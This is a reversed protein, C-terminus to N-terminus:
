ELSLTHKEVQEAIYQVRDILNNGLVMDGVGVIIAQDGITTLLGHVYERFEHEPTREELLPSPIGGWIMPGNEWEQWAEEFTCDTLPSPSFSECVDLNSEALLALLPKLNGDTHSGVKKGQGHLIDAYKQYYPLSYKEFLNPNTMMGDLNDGFEVYISTLNKLCDLIELM